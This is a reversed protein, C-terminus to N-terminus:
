SVRKCVEIILFVIQLPWLLGFCLISVWTIYPRSWPYVFLRTSIIVGAIMFVGAVILYAILYIM